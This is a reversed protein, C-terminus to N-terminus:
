VQEDDAGGYMKAGCYPCYDFLPKGMLTPIDNVETKCASCEFECAHDGSKHIWHGHKVPQYESSTIKDAWERITHGKYQFEDLAKEGVDEVMKTIDIKLEAM